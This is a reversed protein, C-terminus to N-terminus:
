KIFEVILLYSISTWLVLYIKDSKRPFFKLLYTLISVFFWFFLTIVLLYVEKNGLSHFTSFLNKLNEKESNYVTEPVYYIYDFTTKIFNFNTNFTDDYGVLNIEWIDFYWEFKMLWFLTFLLTILIIAIIKM